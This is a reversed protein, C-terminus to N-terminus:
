EQGEPKETEEDIEVFEGEIIESEEDQSPVDKESRELLKKALHNGISSVMAFLLARGLEKFLNRETEKEDQDSSKGM